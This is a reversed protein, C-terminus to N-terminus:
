LLTRILKLVSVIIRKFLNPRKIKKVLESVSEMEKFDEVMDKICPVGYLTAGCEFHHTLSRFDFNITGCFAFVDDAVMQKEHNFGPTYIYVKVGAELLNAFESKAMWYVIKKDPIGPLFLKVDVGRKAANKVAELLSYTPIFYPTSIWLTRNARAIINLYNEEGIAQNNDYGGPGDGFSYIYGPEDYLDYPFDLFDDYNSVRKASLDYNQLFTAILNSIGPGKIKIMTDKWYGFRKLDNAYEDALNMGGTYAEKHDIVAIKRHDRNNYAGSIIPSIKHFKYCKIGKKRLKKPYNNPLLGFSGLDDYLLRVEVGQSAKEILVSEIQSWWKGEGIIFFEMFIFKEAKKLSEVFEPFFLEGNKYYTIQNNKTSHLFSVNRLYRFATRYEIPVDERFEDIENDKLAFKEKIIKNSPIIIRKDKRRVGHNAFFVYFVLTLHPFILLFAIWPIKYEPNERKGVIHFFIILDFIMVLIRSLSFIFINDVDTFYDIAFFFVMVVAVLLIIEIVLFIASLAIPSFLKRFFRRM